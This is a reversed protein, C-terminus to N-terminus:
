RIRMITIHAMSLAREAMMEALARFSLKFRLHWRV